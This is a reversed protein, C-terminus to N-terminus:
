RSIFAPFKQTCTPIPHDLFCIDSRPVYGQSRAFSLMSCDLLTLRGAILNWLVRSSGPGAKQYGGRQHPRALTLRVFAADERTDTDWSMNRGLIVTVGYKLCQHYFGEMEDEIGQTSNYAVRLVFFM